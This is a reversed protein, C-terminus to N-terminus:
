WGAKIACRWPFANCYRSGLKRYCRHWSIFNWWVYMTVCYKIWFQVGLKLAIKDARDKLLPRATSCHKRQVSLVGWFLDNELDTHEAGRLRKRIKIVRRSLTYKIFLKHNKLYLFFSLFLIRYEVPIESKAKLWEDVNHIM